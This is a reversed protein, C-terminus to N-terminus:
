VDNQEYRCAVPASLLSFMASVICDDQYTECVCYSVDCEYFQGPQGVDM